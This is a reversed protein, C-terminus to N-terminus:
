EFCQYLSNVTESQRGVLRGEKITVPNRYVVCKKESEDTGFPLAYNMDLMDKESQSLSAGM